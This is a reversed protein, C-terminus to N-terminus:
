VWHESIRNVKTSNTSSQALSPQCRIQFHPNPAVFTQEILGLPLLVLDNSVATKATFPLGM